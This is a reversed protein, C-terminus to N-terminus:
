NNSGNGENNVGEENEGIGARSLEDADMQKLMDDALDGDGLADLIKRTLYDDAVYPAIMSLTQLEETRNAIKSRTFIVNSEVGALDLLTNIFERICYEYEDTKSNLPEYAAEIQTATVAGSAINETDLAMADRYMDRELRTLLAERSQYPVDPQHSEARAGDEDVVAAHLTKIRDVFKALDVDDMGGANQITWYVFSAEDVTNAFGSKILDYCDIQERLGVLESQKEHNGWMPIIPFTKYNEGSYIELGDAKSEGTKLIYPRLPQLIEYEEGDRFIVHMYGELTYLTARLPKNKAYQWFRVGAKLAGDEEDYLPAFNVFDFVEVHDVNYFGFSVGQVLASKGLRQLQNDFRNRKNEIKKLVEPNSWTCGNGLLYQNEQTVFRHFHRCAMKFNANYNDPVAKGTVTYLIKQYENITTNRHKDYEVAAAAMKYAESNKHSTILTKIFQMLEREDGLHKLLDQYTYM